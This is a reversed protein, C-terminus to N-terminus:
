ILNQNHQGIHVIGRVLERMWGTTRVHCCCKSPLRVILELFSSSRNSYRRSSAAYRDPCTERVLSFKQSSNSIFRNFFRPQFNHWRRIFAEAIRLAVCNLVKNFQQVIRFPIAFSPIIISKTLFSHIACGRSVM